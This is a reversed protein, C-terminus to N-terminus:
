EKLRFFLNLLKVINKNTNNNNAARGATYVTSRYICALALV